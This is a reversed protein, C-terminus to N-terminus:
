GKIKERKRSVMTEHSLNTNKQRKNEGKQEEKKRGIKNM